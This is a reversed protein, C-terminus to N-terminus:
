RYFDEFIWGSLAMFAFVFILRAAVPTEDWWERLTPRNPDRDTM